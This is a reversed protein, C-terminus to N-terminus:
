PLSRFAPSQAKFERMVAYVLCDTHATLTTADLGVSRGLTRFVEAEALERVAVSALMGKPVATRAGVFRLRFRKDLLLTGNVLTDIGVDYIVHDIVAAARTAIVQQNKRRKRAFLWTMLSMADV